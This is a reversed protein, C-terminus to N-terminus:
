QQTRKTISLPSVIDDHEKISIMSSRDLMKGKIIGGGINILSNTTLHM